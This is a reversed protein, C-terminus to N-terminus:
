YRYVNKGNHIGYQSVEIHLEQNDVNLRKLGTLQLNGNFISGKKGGIQCNKLLAGLLYFLPKKDPNL